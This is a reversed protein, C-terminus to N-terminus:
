VKALALANRCSLPLLSLDFSESSKLKEQGSCLCDEGLPTTTKKKVYSVHKVAHQTFRATVFKVWESFQGACFVGIHAKRASPLTQAIMNAVWPLFVLNPMIDIHVLLHRIGEVSFHCISIFGGYLGDRNVRVCGLYLQPSKFYCIFCKTLDTMCHPNSM